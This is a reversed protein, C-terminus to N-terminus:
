DRAGPWPGVVKAIADSSFLRKAEIYIECFRLSEEPPHRIARLVRWTRFLKPYVLAIRVLLKAFCKHGYSTTLQDEGGSESFRDNECLRNGAKKTVAVDLASAYEDERM